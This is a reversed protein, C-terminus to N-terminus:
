KVIKEFLHSAELDATYLAVIAPHKDNANNYAMKEGYEEPLGMHWVIATIEFESLQIFQQIIIVSKSGHGLPLKDDVEWVEKEVWNPFGNPKNGEKVNKKGKVYFNCKCVDHLLGCLIISDVPIKLDYWQNKQDFLEMVKYSHEALGGEFNSHYKTSAPATFFDTEMELYAILRNIGNRQVTKLVNIIDNKYEEM